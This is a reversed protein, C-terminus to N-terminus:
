GVVEKYLSSYKTAMATVSFNTEVHTRCAKRSIAGITEVAKRMTAESETIFGTVGDQIVEPVSGKNMAIVPTGCSMAEIFVLGFPEEWRIPALLAAANQYLPVLEEQSVAGLYEISNNLYPKITTDFFDQHHDYLTGVIKLPLQMEKAVKVAIDPGKEPMIRGVYLLYDEHDESFKWVNTDIGNHVTADWTLLPQPARQADTLSVFHINTFQNYLYLMDYGNDDIPDHVTQITPLNPKISAFDITSYPRTHSHFIDFNHETMYNLAQIMMINEYRYSADKHPYKQWIQEDSFPTMDFTILTATTVTGKPAFLTVDHGLTSLEDALLGAVSMNAYITGPPVPYITNNTCYIGIKM